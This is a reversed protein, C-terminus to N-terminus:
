LLFIFLNALSKRLAKLAKTMHAEVTKHSINLSHAIEKATLGGDHSLRFVLRCKEPLCQVTTEIQERLLEYDVWESTSNDEVVYLKSNNELAKKEKQKGLKALTEYKVVSAIYTHFSKKLQIGHRKRWLNLFVEKVVEEAEEQINLKLFAQVLLKNWYRDYLIAFAKAENRKVLEFLENDCYSKYSSM